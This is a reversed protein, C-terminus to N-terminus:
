MMGIKGAIERSAPRAMARAIFGALVLLSMYVMQRKLFVGDPDGDCEHCCEGGHHVGPASNAAELVLIRRVAQTLQHVAQQPGGDGEKDQNLDDAQAVIGM